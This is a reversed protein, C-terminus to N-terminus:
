GRSGGEKQKTPFIALTDQGGVGCALIGTKLASGVVGVLRLWKLVSPAINVYLNLSRFDENLAGIITPKPLWYDM